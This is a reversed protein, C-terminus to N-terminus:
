CVQHGGSRHSHRRATPGAPSFDRRFISGLGTQEAGDERRDRAPAPDGCREQPVDGNVDVDNDVWEVWGEVIIFFDFGDEGEVVIDEGPSFTVEELADAIVM